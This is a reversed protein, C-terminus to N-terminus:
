KLVIVSIYIYTCDLRLDLVFWLQFPKCHVWLLCGCILPTRSICFHTVVEYMIEAQISLAVPGLPCLKMVDISVQM